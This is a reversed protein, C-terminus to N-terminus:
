SKRALEDNDFDDVAIVDSKAAELDLLKQLEAQSIINASRASHLIDIYNTGSLDGASHARLIRNQMPELAVLNNFTQEVRGAANFESPTKYIGAVLRDRGESPELIFDAVQQSLQDMPPVYYKGLPFIFFRLIVSAIKHPFNRLIEDLTQQVNWLSNQCLWQVIPLDAHPRGQEEFYKLVASSMYLESLIDGLRGSLREKRKLEGGLMLMSFDAILAFATSMRTFKQFYRKVPSRRPAFVLWGNSIGLFLSRFLTSFTYGM